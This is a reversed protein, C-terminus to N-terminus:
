YMSSGIKANAPKESYVKIFKERILSGNMRLSRFLLAIIHMSHTTKTSTASQQKNM